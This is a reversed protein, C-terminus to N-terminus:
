SPDKNIPPKLHFKAAEDIIDQATVENAETGTGNFLKTIEIMDLVDQKILRIPLDWM